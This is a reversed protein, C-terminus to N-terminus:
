NSFTAKFDKIIWYVVDAIAPSNPLTTGQPTRAVDGQQDVCMAVTNTLYAKVTNIAQAYSGPDACPANRCIAGSASLGTVYNILTDVPLTGTHYGSPMLAGAPSPACTSQASVTDWSSWLVTGDGKATLLDLGISSDDVIDKVDSGSTGPRSGCGALLLSGVVFLSRATRAKM